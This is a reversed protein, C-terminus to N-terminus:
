DCFCVIVVCLGVVVWILVGFVLLVVILLLWLVKLNVSCDSCFVSVFVWLDYFGVLMVLGIFLFVLFQSM